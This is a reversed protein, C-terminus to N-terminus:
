ESVWGVGAEGGLLGVAGHVGLQLMFREDGCADEEADTESAKEVADQEMLQKLYVVHERGLKGLGADRVHLNVHVPIPQEVRKAEDHDQRTKCQQPTSACTAIDGPAAFDEDPSIEEAPAKEIEDLADNIMVDQVDVMDQLAMTLRYEVVKEKRRAEDEYDAAPLRNRRRLACEPGAMCSSRPPWTQLASPDRAFTRMLCKIVPMFLMKECVARTRRHLEELRLFDVAIEVGSSM